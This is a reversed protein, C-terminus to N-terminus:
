VGEEINFGKKPKSIWIFILKNINTQEHKIVDKINPYINKLLKLTLIAKYEMKKYGDYGLEQILFDRKREEYDM